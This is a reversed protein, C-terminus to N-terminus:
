NNNIYRILKALEDEIHRIVIKEAHSPHEMNIHQNLSNQIMNMYMAVNTYDAIANPANNIETM